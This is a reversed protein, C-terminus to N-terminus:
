NENLDLDTYVLYPLFIEVLLDAYLLHFWLHKILKHRYLFILTHYPHFNVHFLKSLKSKKFSVFKISKLNLFFLCIPLKLVFIFCTLAAPAFICSLQDKSCKHKCLCWSYKSNFKISKVKFIRM